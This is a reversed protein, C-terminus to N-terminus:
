IGELFRDEFSIRRIQGTKRIKIYEKRDGYYDWTKGEGEEIEESVQTGRDFGAHFNWSRSNWYETYYKPRREPAVWEREGKDRKNRDKM